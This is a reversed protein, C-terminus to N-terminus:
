MGGRGYQSEACTVPKPNTNDSNSNETGGGNSSSSDGGSSGGGCGLMVTSIAMMLVSPMFSRSIMM